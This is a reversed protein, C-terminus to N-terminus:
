YCSYQRALARIQRLSIDSSAQILVQQQTAVMNRSVSNFVSALATVALMLMLTLPLPELLGMRRDPRPLSNIKNFEM